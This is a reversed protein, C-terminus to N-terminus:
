WSRFGPCEFVRAAPADPRRRLPPLSRAGVSPPQREAARPTRAVCTEPVPGYPHAAGTFALDLWYLTTGPDLAYVELTHTSRQLYM